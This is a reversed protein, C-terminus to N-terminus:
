KCVRVEQDIEGFVSKGNRDLMEMSVRDGDGLYPTRAEGFELQELVRKEAICGCGVSQDFNSITGGGIITGATLRRTKAAHVILDCFDFSVDHGAYLEGFARGNLRVRMPLHVKSGVWASGLEDPSIAVQSLTSPPKGHVFGFGKDLESPILNRLSIDNVIVLLRVAQEAQARSCRRPVDGVIVALETEFDLGWGVDEVVIPERAALFADSSGQYMIPESKLVSPMKAGRGKRIREVHSLYGSGDLWQYARPLPASFECPDPFLEGEVGEGNLRQYIENLGDSTEDWFDLAYQLTPAIHRVAVARTLDSSVVVLQGDRESTRLTGLKM